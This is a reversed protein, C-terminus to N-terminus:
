KGVERLSLDGPSTQDSPQSEPDLVPRLCVGSGVEAAGRVAPAPSGSEM